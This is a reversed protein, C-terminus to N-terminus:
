LESPWKETISKKKCIRKFGAKEISRLSPANYISADIYVNIREVPFLSAATQQLCPSIGKGRHTPVTAGRMLVVDDPELDIFWKPIRSAKRALGICVPEDYIFGLCFTCGCHKVLILNIHMAQESFANNLQKLLSAPIDEIREIHQM